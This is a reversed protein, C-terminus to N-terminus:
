LEYTSHTIWVEPRYSNSSPRSTYPIQVITCVLRDSGASRGYAQIIHIVWEIYGLILRLEIVVLSIVKEGYAHSHSIRANM